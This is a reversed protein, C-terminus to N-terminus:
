GELLEGPIRTFEDIIDFASLPVVNGEIFYDTEFDRTIDFDTDITADIFTDTKQKIDNYVEARDTMIMQHLMPMSADLPIANCYGNYVALQNFNSTLGSDTDMHEAYISRKELFLNFLAHYYIMYDEETYEDIPTVKDTIYDVEVFKDIGLKDVINVWKDPANFFTDRYKNSLVHLEPKLRVLFHRSSDADLLKITTTSINENNLIKKGNVYMDYYRIDLPFDLQSRDIRITDSKLKDTYLITNLRFPFAEATLVDGVKISIKFIFTYAELRGRRSVIRIMNKPILLGNIHFRMADIYEFYVYPVQLTCDGDYSALKDVRTYWDYDNVEVEFLGSEIDVFDNKNLFCYAVKNNVFYYIDKDSILVGNYYINFFKNSGCKFSVLFRDEYFKMEQLEHESYGNTSKISKFEDSIDGYKFTFGNKM